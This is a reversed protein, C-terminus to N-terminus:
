DFAQAEELSINEQEVMIGIAFIRSHSCMVNRQLPPNSIIQMEDKEPLFLVLEAITHLTELLCQM